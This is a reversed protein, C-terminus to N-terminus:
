AFTCPRRLQLCNYRWGRTKMFDNVHYIDVDDSRFSIVFTPEGILTLEPITGIGAKLADAVDMIRRAAQLYGEEGLYIM